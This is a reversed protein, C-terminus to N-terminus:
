PLNYFLTLLMCVIDDPDVIGLMFDLIWCSVYFGPCTMAYKSDSQLPKDTLTLCQVGLCSTPHNLVEGELSVYRPYSPRESGLQVKPAMDCAFLIVSFMIAPIALFSLNM